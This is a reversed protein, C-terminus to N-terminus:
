VVVRQGKCDIMAGFRSLWDIGVIVCVDKMPIHILDITYPVGFIELVCGQYISLTSIGHENAIFLRLPCELKGPAM